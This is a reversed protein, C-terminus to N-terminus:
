EDITKRFEGSATRIDEGIARWDSWLAMRDAEKPTPATNYTSFTGGFDFLRAIGDLFSPHAFLLTSYSTRMNMQARRKSVRMSTAM